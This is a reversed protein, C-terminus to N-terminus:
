LSQAVLGRVRSPVRSQHPIVLGAELTIEVRARVGYGGNISHNTSLRNAESPDQYDIIM